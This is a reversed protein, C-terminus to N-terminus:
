KLTKEVLAKVLAGDFEQGALKKMVAGMLQGMKAPDTIGLEAKTAEVVKMIEEESIMEPLYAEIYKLEAEEKEVLDTRNGARYQEISEKRQKVQKKIVKLCTEDSINERDGATIAESKIASFLFRIASLAHENHEKMATKMDETIRQFLM